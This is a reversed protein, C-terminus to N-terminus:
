KVTCRRKRHLQPQQLRNLGFVGFRYSTQDSQAAVSSDLSVSLIPLSLCPRESQSEIGKKKEKRETNSEWVTLNSQNSSLQSENATVPWPRCERALHASSNCYLGICSIYVCLSIFLLSWQRLSVSVCALQRTRKGPLHTCMCCVCVKLLLRAAHLRGSHRGTM